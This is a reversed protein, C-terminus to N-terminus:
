CQHRTFRKPLKVATNRPVVVRVLALPNRNSGNPKSGGRATPRIENTNSAAGDGRVIGEIESAGPV